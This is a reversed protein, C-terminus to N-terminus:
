AADSKNADRAKAKAVKVDAEAQKAGVMSEVALEQMRRLHAAAAYEEDRQAQAAATQAKIMEAQAKITALAQDSQAKAQAAQADIQAKIIETQAKTKEMEMAPDPQPNAAAQKASEMSTDIFEEFSAELDRGVRFGRLVWLMSKGLLPIMQPFQAGAIVAKDLFGGMATILEVREQKTQLADAMITSDTEIDLRFGRLKDQRLLGIAAAIIRLKEMEPDIPPVMASTGGVAPQAGSVGPLGGPAGPPVMPVVNSGPGAPLATGVPGPGAAEGTDLADATLGDDQLVASSAIITDPSFHEAIIEGGIRILDRCFRAVENQRAQLRQTAFSGKIQQAGLTERPDSQGRIIDAIGTIEYLDAKIQERVAILETLTAAIEKIPLWSVAGDLGGKEAFRAWDQVPVLQNDDSEDLLRKLAGVSADYAGTVKLARTLQDIKGTIRDLQDAQDQYELYDAVPYTTGNTMTANLPTPCPYFGELHLPDPTKELLEDWEKCVFIVNKDTECWIEYVTAKLAGTQENGTIYHGGSDRPSSLPIKDGVDPWRKKLQDRGLYLRRAKWTLEQETRGDSTLYDEWHVYDWCVKESLLQGSQDVSYGGADDPVGSGGGEGVPEAGMAVDTKSGQVEDDAGYEQPSVANGFAPEYRVWVQGRGPLLFDEVARRASADFYGCEVEYRLARELMTAAVRGLPDKDLYRREVIAEPAKAYVAPMLTQVNSWLINFRRGRRSQDTENWREDRYRKVIKRGRECFKKYEKSGEVTEIAQKWLACEARTDTQEAM